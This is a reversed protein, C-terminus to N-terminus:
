RAHQSAAGPRDGAATTGAMSQRAASRWRSIVCGHSADGPVPELQHQGAGTVLPLAVVRGM